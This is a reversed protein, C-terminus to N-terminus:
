ARIVRTGLTKFRDSHYARLPEIQLKDSFKRIYGVSVGFSPRRRLRPNGGPSRDPNGVRVTVVSLPENHM